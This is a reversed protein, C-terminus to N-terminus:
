SKRDLLSQITEVLRDLPVEFQKHSEGFETRLDKVQVTQPNKRLEEEGPIVAIPIGAKDAFKLQGSLTKGKECHPILWTETSIGAERLMRAIRSSESRLSDDFVTVLVVASSQKSIQPFISTIEQPCLELGGLLRDLGVSLGFGSIVRDCYKGVLNDYRGGGGISGIKEAGELMIECIFGTYYDLGRTLSPSFLIKREDVGEELVRQFFEKLHTKLPEPNRIKNLLSKGTEVDIKVEQMREFELSSDFDQLLLQGTIEKFVKSEGQVSLKDLVRFIDKHKKEEVGLENLLSSLYKRDNIKFYYCDIGLRHFAQSVATVIEVEPEYPPAGLVDADLQFFERLRGRKPKDFRWVKGVQFRKFPFSLENINMAVFRALSLTLDFRLGVPTRELDYFRYIQKNPDVGLESLLIDQHEIVSTELPTFGYLLFTKEFANIIHHLVKVEYPSHDKFGRILRPKIKVKDM